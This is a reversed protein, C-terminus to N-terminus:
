SGTSAPAGSEQWHRVLRSQAQNVESERMEQVEEYWLGEGATEVSKAGSPVQLSIRGPQRKAIYPIATLDGKGRISKGQIFCGPWLITPSPDLLAFDGSQATVDYQMPQTVKDCDVIFGTSELTHRLAPVSTPSGTAKAILKDEAAESVHGASRLLQEVEQINKPDKNDPTPTPAGGGNSSEGCSAFCLGAVLAFAFAIKKM